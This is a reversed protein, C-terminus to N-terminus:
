LIVLYLFEELSVFSSCTGDGDEISIYYQDSPIRPRFQICKVNNIAILHEMKRM